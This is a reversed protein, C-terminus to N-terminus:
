NLTRGGLSRLADIVQETTIDLLGRNSWLAVHRHWAPPGWLRPRMEGFVVISPTGLATALHAVGTDGSMVVRAAAVAAAMHMLDGAIISAPDIAALAAVEAALPLEGPGASVAVRRGAKVENRAVV